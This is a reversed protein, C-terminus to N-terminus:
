VPMTSDGPTVPAPSQPRGQQVFDALQATDLPKACATGQILDCGLAQLTRAQRETNVGEAITTAGLAAAMQVVAQVMDAGGAANNLKATLAPAIKLAAPRLEMLDLLGTPGTGFDGIEIAIGAAQLAKLSRLIRAQAPNQEEAVALRLPGRLQVALRSPRFDQCGLAATLDPHKLADTHLDIAIKPVQLGQASLQELAAHSKNLLLRELEPLIQLREALPMFIAPPLLGRVPHAWHLQAEVGALAGNRTCIQPLFRPEFAETQLAEQLQAALARSDHLRRKLHDSVVEIRDRGAAKARYLAADVSIQLDETLGTVDTVCVIGFSASIRSQTGRYTFPERLAARMRDAMAEAEARNRGPALLLSFEDGGLRAAFDGESLCGRLVEAVRCLAQDGAEHGLTDNINKFHDIDIQILALDRPLIGERAAHLRQELTRDFYRRNPLGTLGDHLALHENRARMREALGYARELERERTVDASVDYLGGTWVVAGDAERVPQSSASLWILGRRPHVFRFRLRWPSLDRASEATMAQMKERDEPVIRDRVMSSLPFSETDSIGLLDKFRASMYPFETQGDPRLRYEFLGVPAVDTISHLRVHARRLEETAAAARAEVEVRDSIDVVKGFWTVAGGPRAVPAAWAHLWRRVAGDHCVRVRFEIPTLNERSEAFRQAVKQRDELPVNAFIREADSGLDEPAIGLLAPLKQTFYPWWTRGDAECRYEFLAGPVNEAITNLREHALKLAETTECEETVDFVSGHWIVSGDPQHYPVSSLQMRRLGLRPHNLRYRFDLRRMQRRAAASAAQLAPADDPHINRAAAVGDALIEERPVGMLEPLRASFYPLDVDGAPSERHEYLAGPANDALTNLRDRSRQAVAAAEALQRETEKRDTINQFAGSLRAPKGNEFAAEGVTRVWIREGDPRLIPLEVDWPTGEEIGRTVAARILPQAEPAYFRIAEEMTPRYGPPVGHIRCTEDSWFIEGTKLDIEWGGLGALMGARELLDQSQLLRIERQKWTDIDRHLGTMWEPKGESTWSRLRGLNRVWIWHGAKHRLRAEIEYWETEGAFHRELEHKARALDEPHWLATWRAFDVPELEELRYGIIQAWRENLIIEGSQVNWQWLGLDADDLLTALPALPAPIRAGRAPPSPPLTAEVLVGRGPLGPGPRVLTLCFPRPRDAGAQLMLTVETADSALWDRLAPREARFLLATIPRNLVTEPCLQLCACVAADVATLRGAGDFGLGPAPRPDSAAPQARGQALHTCVREITM